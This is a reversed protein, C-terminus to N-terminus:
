ALSICRVGDPVVDTALFTAYPLDVLADTLVDPARDVLNLGERRDTDEAADLHSHSSAVTAAALAAFAFSKPMRMKAVIFNSNHLGLCRPYCPCPIFIFTVIRWRIFGRPLLGVLHSRPFPM